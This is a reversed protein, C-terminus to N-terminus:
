AINPCHQHSQLTRTWRLHRRSRRNPRCDQPLMASAFPTSRAVGASGGPCGPDSAQLSINRCAAGRRALRACCFKSVPESAASPRTTAPRSGAAAWVANVSGAGGNSRGTSGDREPFQVAVTPMPPSYRGSKWPDFFQISIGIGIKEMRRAPEVASNRPGRSLSANRQDIETVKPDTRRRFENRGAVALIMGLQAAQAVDLSRELESPEDFIVRDVPKAQAAFQALADAAM